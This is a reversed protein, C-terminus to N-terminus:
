KRSWANHFSNLYPPQMKQLVIKGNYPEGLISRKGLTIEGLGWLASSSSHTLHASLSIFQIAPGLPHHDTAHVTSLTCYSTICGLPWNQALNEKVDENIIQIITQIIGEAFKIFGSYISASHYKDKKRYLMGFSHLPCHLFFSSCQSYWLSCLVIYTTNGYVDSHLVLGPLPLCDGLCASSHFSIMCGNARATGSFAPSFDACWNTYVSLKECVFMLFCLKIKHPHKYM